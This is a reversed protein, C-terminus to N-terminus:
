RKHGSASSRASAPMRDAPFGRLRDPVRPAQVPPRPHRRDPAIIRARGAAWAQRRALARVEQLIEIRDIRLARMVSIPLAIALDARADAAQRMHHHCALPEFGSPKGGIKCCKKGLAIMRSRSASASRRRADIGQAASARQRLRPAFSRTRSAARCIREIASMPSSPSSALMPSSTASAQGSRIPWLRPPRPRKRM